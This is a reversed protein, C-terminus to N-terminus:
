GSSLDIEMAATNSLTKLRNDEPSSVIVMEFTVSWNTSKGRKDQM